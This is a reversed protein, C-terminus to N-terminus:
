ENELHYEKKLANVTKVAQQKAANLFYIEFRYNSSSNYAMNRLQEWVSKENTLFPYEKEIFSMVGKTTHSLNLPSDSVLFDLSNLYYQDFIKHVLNVNEVKDPEFRNQMLTIIKIAQEYDLIKRTLMTNGLYRLAGSSKLQQLTADHTVLNWRQMSLYEYFYIKGSSVIKSNNKLLIGLSDGANIILSQMSIASDIEVVDASLDQILLAAFEKANKHEVFNERINEAFFGMTVALFIMLGELFYEKFSKKEVQPHHHVEMPITEPSQIIAHQDEPFHKPEDRKHTDKDHIKKKETM